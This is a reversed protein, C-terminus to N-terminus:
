DHQVVATKLIYPMGNFVSTKGDEFIVIVGKDTERIDNVVGEDLMDGTYVIKTRGDPLFIDVKTKIVM